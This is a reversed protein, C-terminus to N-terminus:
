NVAFGTYPRKYSPHFALVIDDKPVGLNVFEEAIGEETGDQQIWIKDKKLDVHLLCGHIREHGDWGVSNLYYHDHKSDFTTQMEVEGYAPKIRAYDTLINEIYARYQTLRDM